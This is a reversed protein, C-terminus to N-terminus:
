EGGIAEDLAAGAPVIPFVNEDNHLRFRCLFPCGAAFAEELAPVVDEPDVVDRGKGGFAEVVRVFDPNDPLDVSSYRKGHFLNQWQRVMGLAQNDFLCIVLPIKLSVCTTLEQINMQFSGDGTILVVTRDPCAVKAGIAAPLGYGMTGLGGSTLFSRARSFPYYQASWMQHQGVDTVLIADEGALRGVEEVIYRPSICGRGGKQGKKYYPLPHKEKWEKIRAHWPGYDKLRSRDLKELLQELVLKLDGVVGVDPEVNKGIEATDIDVHVIRAKNAFRDRKGTVRDDFRVGFGLILDAEQVCRNAYLSGHMGLMGLSLPHKRPVATMGMLTTTVPIGTLDVFKRLPEWAGSTIAGGGVYLLPRKARYIEALIAEIESDKAKGPVIYGPLIIEGEPPDYLASRQQVDKPLDILVPGPRGTRAIYFAEKFVAPIDETRRVFYSHKTIPFSLGFTDAEQFADTGVLSVPVQGTIAIIPVSDMYATALGTVLNTSGPGSTAMCVGVKGSARAYGDAMHCAGQEHRVLIHRLKHDLMADYVPMIAGGPYGFITDVGERLLSRIVMTAGALMERGNGKKEPKKAEAPAIPAAPRVDPIFDGPRDQKEAQDVKARSTRPDPEQRSM